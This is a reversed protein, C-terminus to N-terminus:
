LITGNGVEAAVGLAAVPHEGGQVTVPEKAWCLTDILTARM